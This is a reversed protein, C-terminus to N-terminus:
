DDCRARKSPVLAYLGPHGRAPFAQVRESRRLRVAPHLSGAAHQPEKTPLATSRRRAPFTRHLVRVGVIM